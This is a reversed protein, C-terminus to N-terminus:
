AHGSAPKRLRLRVTGPADPATDICSTRVCGARTAEAATDVAAPGGISSQAFFMRLTRASPRTVKAGAVRLPLQNPRERLVSGRLRRGDSRVTACVLYDPAQDPPDSTTWLRVCLSGPPGSKALLQRARWDAALTLSARIRGGSMRRIAFRTLDLAGTAVDGKEDDAVVSRTPTAAFAGAALASAVVATVVVAHGARM